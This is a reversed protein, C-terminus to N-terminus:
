AIDIRVIGKAWRIVFGIDEWIAFVDAMEMVNKMTEVSLDTRVALVGLYEAPALVYVENSPVIVSQLVDTGWISGIKGSKIAQDQYNPAFIGAGGTGSTTTNFLLLDKSRFPNM